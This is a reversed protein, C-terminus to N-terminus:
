TGGAKPIHSWRNKLGTTNFRAQSAILVVLVIGIGCYTGATLYQGQTGFMKLALRSAMAVAILFYVAALLAFAIILLRDVSRAGRTVNDDLWEEWGCVGPVLGEINERMYTGCRMLAHNESLFLLALIVVVFPLALTLAEIENAAAFYQAGPVVVAGGVVIKFLRDKTADIERRLAQYQLELFRPAPLQMQALLVAPVSGGKWEELATSKLDRM